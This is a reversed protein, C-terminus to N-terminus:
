RKVKQTPTLAPTEHAAAIREIEVLRRKIAALKAADSMKNQKATGLALRARVGIKWLDLATDTTM